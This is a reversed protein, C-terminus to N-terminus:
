QNLTTKLSSLKQENIGVKQKLTSKHLQTDFM